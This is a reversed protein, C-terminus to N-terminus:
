AHERPLMMAIYITSLLTFVFAQITGLLLSLLIFPFHLPFSFLFTVGLMLFVALLIHEGMINGFLRLSLSLPKALEGIIHLPLMIPVILWGFIDNPSGCLHYLYGIPGNKTIGIWQVYLFVVLALPVTTTIFQTTANQLPVLGFLNSVLIYIFLSGVFPTYKRGQPGIIGCVLSDLGSVLSEVFMQFRGPVLSTRRAATITFFAIISIIMASFIVKEWHLLFDSLPSHGLSKALLGVWNVIEPHAHSAADSAHEAQM